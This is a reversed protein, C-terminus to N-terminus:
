KDVLDMWEQMLDGRLSLDEVSKVILSMAKGQILRRNVKKTSLKYQNALKTLKEDRSMKNERKANM